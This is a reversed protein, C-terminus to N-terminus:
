YTQLQQSGSEKRQGRDSCGKKTVYMGTKWQGHLYFLTTYLQSLETYQPLKSGSHKFVPVGLTKQNPMIKIMEKVEKDEINMNEQTLRDEMEEKFKRFWESTINHQVAKCCMKACFKRAAEADSSFDRSKERQQEIQKKKLYFNRRNNKFLGNQQQQNTRQQYLKKGSM